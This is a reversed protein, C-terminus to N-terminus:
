LATMGGDAVVLSGTVFSADESLLFCVPGAIEEPEAFRRQPTDVSVEAARKAFGGESYIAETMGTRVRGPAVANVRIKDPALEVALQRSFALIAGKAASYAGLSKLGILAAVSAVNVIAGGGVARMAPVASQCVLFTGTAHVALMRTWQEVPFTDVPGHLAHGAANFVADIRGLRKLTEAVARKVAGEDAVDCALAISGPLGAAVAEARKADLDVVAVRGGEASFRRATAAALGSGGGTAFLVKDKFRMGTM